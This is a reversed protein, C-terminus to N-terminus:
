LIWHYSSTNRWIVRCPSSASGSRSEKVGVWHFLVSHSHYGGSELDVEDAQFGGFSAFDPFGTGAEDDRGIFHDAIYGRECDGRHISLPTAM